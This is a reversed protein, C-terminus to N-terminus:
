RGTGSAAMGASGVEPSSVLELLVKGSKFYCIRKAPVNVTEGTKPNRGTRARRQRLGFTGFGRIEISSGARLSEVMAALAANVIVEADKKAIDTTAAVAATLGAKTLTETSGDPRRGLIRNAIDAKERGAEDIGAARCIAELEDRRLVQVIRPFPARPSAAIADILERKHLRGVLGLGLAGAIELLRPRTLTDLAGRQDITPM